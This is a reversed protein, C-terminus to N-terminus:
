VLGRLAATPVATFAYLSKYNNHQARAAGALIVVLIVLLVARLNDLSCKRSM